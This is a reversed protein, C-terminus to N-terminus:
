EYERLEKLEELWDALQEHERACEICEKKDNPNQRLLRTLVAENYKKAAVDKAHKIAVDLDM